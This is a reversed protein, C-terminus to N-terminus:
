RRTDIKEARAKTAAIRVDKWTTEGKPAYSALTLLELFELVVKNSRPVRKELEAITLDPSPNVELVKQGIQNFTAIIFQEDEKTGFKRRRIRIIYIAAGSLLVLLLVLYPAYRNSTNKSSSEIPQKVQTTSTSVLTSQTIPPAITTTTTTTVVTGINAPAQGPLPGTPTPDVTLWGFGSLYVEVWSHAQENTVTFVGNSDPEGPSFGVVVRAPIGISRAMAAYTTAFQECFGRKTKLFEQMANTDSSYNVDLDYTFSGDLFFDRLAIAQDYVTGPGSNFLNRRIERAKEQISEDFNKPLLISQEVKKPANGSSNEIQEATLDSPMGNASFSYQNLSDDKAIIVSHELFDVDDTTLTDITYFTPLFKAALGVLQVSANLQRTAVGKPAVEPKQKTQSDVYWANGDFDDLVAVRWYQAENATATFLVQREQSKLQQSMSVLPSLETKAKSNDLFKFIDDPALSPLNTVPLVLLLSVLSIALFSILYQSYNTVYSSKPIEIVHSKAAEHGREFTYLFFWFTAFLVFMTVILFSSTKQAAVTANIILYWILTPSSSHLRQALTEGIEALVWVLILVVLFKQTSYEFPISSTRFSAVGSRADDVMTIITEFTPFMKSFNGGSNSILLIITLFIFSILPSIPQLRHHPACITAIVHVAFAVFVLAVINMASLTVINRAHVVTVISLAILAVTVFRSREM